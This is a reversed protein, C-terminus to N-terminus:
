DEIGAYKKYLTVIKKSTKKAQKNMDAEEDDWHAIFNNIVSTLLDRCFKIITMYQKANKFKALRFEIWNDHQLNVFNTHEEPNTYGYIPRAWGDHTFERGWFAATKEPNTEMIHSLEGFIEFYYNRLMQMSYENIDDRNGINLHTGCENGIRMDCSCILTEISVLQKSIANLGQYIPSKYEIDVTCDSTPVFGFDLLEGRAKQSTRSTELEISVTWPNVKKKGYEVPNESSYSRLRRACDRCLYGNRGGRKAIPIKVEGINHCDKTMCYPIRSM